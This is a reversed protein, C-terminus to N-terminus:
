LIKEINIDSEEKLKEDEKIAITQYFIFNEKNFKKKKKLQQYIKEILLVINCHHKFHEFLFKNNNQNKIYYDFMSIKMEEQTKSNKLNLIINGKRDYITHQSPLIEIVGKEGRITFIEKKMHSHRNINVVGSIDNKFLMIINISDELREKKMNNYCFSNVSTASILGNFFKLIIDLIHYGMDILVGGFSKNFEGRWGKTEDELNLEYDYSFNYIKGIKNLNNKANIFSLNFNRQVITFLKNNLSKKMTNVYDKIDLSNIAMPKEKIITKKLSILPLTVKKHLNHPLCLIAIDFEINEKLDKIDQLLLYKNSDYTKNLSEFDNDILAKFYYKENLLKFYEKGQHGAAGILIVNVKNNLENKSENLPLNIKKNM